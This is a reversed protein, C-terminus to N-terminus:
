STSRSTRWRRTSTSRSRERFDTSEDIFLFDGAELSTLLGVLDKPKELAPGSTIRLTAGMERCLIACLSTKGLGPLGSLLVHELVEGRQRAAAVYIRLNNKLGDQGIFDDFNRPRLASDWEAPENLERYSDPQTEAPDSSERNRPTQGQPNTM